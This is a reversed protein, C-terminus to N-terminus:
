EATPGMAEACDFFQNLNAQRLFYRKLANGVFNGVPTPNIATM